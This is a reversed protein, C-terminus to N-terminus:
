YSFQEEWSLFTSLFDISLTSIKCFVDRVFYSVFCFFFVIQVKSWSSFPACNVEHCIPIRNTEILPEICNVAFRFVMYDWFFIKNLLAGM